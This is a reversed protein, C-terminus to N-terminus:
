ARVRQRCIKLYCRERTLEFEGPSDLFDRIRGARAFLLDSVPGKLGNQTIKDFVFNANGIIKRSKSLGWAAAL